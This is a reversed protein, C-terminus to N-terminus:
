DPSIMEEGINWGAPCFDGDSERVAIAAQLKRLLESSNRGITEDHVEYAIIKGDPDVIYSARISTGKAEEYAGLNRSLKGSRDSLMPYKVTKVAENHKHWAQHVYASDTSISLIEANLKKFKPYFESLERLETPCVYTFDAPYFFLILWKGRYDSLNIKTIKGEYFAEMKIEPIKTRIFHNISKEAINKEKSCSCNFSCFSISCALFIPILINKM